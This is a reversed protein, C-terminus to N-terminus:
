LPRAAQTRSAAFLMLNWVIAIALALVLAAARGLPVATLHLAILACAFGVFGGMSHAMVAAAAPGGVRRYLIIM